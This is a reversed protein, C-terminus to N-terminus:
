QDPNSSQSNVVSAKEFSAALKQCLPRSLVFHHDGKVATLVLVPDAQSEPDHLIQYSTVRPIETHQIPM